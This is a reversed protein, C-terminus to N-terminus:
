CSLVWANLPRFVFVYWKFFIDEFGALVGLGGWSEWFFYYTDLNVCVAFLVRIGM